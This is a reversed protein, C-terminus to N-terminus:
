NSKRGMSVALVVLAALVLCVWFAWGMTDIYECAIRIPRALYDRYFRWAGYFTFSIAIITPIRTM